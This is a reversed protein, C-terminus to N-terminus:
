RLLYLSRSFTWRVSRVQGVPDLVGVGRERALDLLVNGGVDGLYTGDECCERGIEGWEVSVAIGPREAAELFEGFGEAEAVVQLM